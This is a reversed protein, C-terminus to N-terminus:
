TRMNVVIIINFTLQTSCISYSHYVHDCLLGRPETTKLLLGTNPICPHFSQIVVRAYFATVRQVYLCKVLPSAGIHERGGM